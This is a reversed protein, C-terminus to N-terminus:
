VLRPNQDLVGAHLSISMRIPYERVEPQDAFVNLSKLSNRILERDADQAVGPEILADVV